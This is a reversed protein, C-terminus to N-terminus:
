VLSDFAVTLMRAVADSVITRDPDYGEMTEDNEALPNGDIALIAGASVGHLSAVVFLSAVEM